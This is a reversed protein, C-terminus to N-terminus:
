KRGLLKKVIFKIRLIELTRLLIYRISPRKHFDILARAAKKSWAPMDEDWVTLTQTDKKQWGEPKRLLLTCTEDSYVTELGLASFFEELYHAYFNWVHANQFYRIPRGYQERIAFIGPVQMVLHGKPAITEILTNVYDLPHNLHELVHSLIVLDQSNPPTKTPDPEGAYLKMGKSIGYQIYKEDFDCGSVSIGHKHFIYLNGGASCGAEFVTKINSTGIYKDALSYFLEGRVFQGRFFEETATEAGSYISRYDDRYFLATSEDDLRKQQRVLGCHRCLVYRCPIGYRDKETVVVDDSTGCMCPNDELRYVGSALKEKFAAIAQHQINTLQILPKGDNKYLPFEPYSDPRSGHAMLWSGHAMLWSGM